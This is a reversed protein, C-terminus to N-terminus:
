KKKAGTEKEPEILGWEEFKRKIEPISEVRIRWHGKPPRKAPISGCEALRRLTWMPVGTQKHLEGLAVM